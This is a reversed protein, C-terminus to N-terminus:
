KKSKSSIDVLKVVNERHRALLEISHTALLFQVDAEGVLKLLSDVLKRQWKVNLSIEPEDIIFVGSRGRAAITNCFLLLLQKEGSSLLSPDLIKGNKEYIRLGNSIDFSVKKDVYFESTGDIFAVILDKVEELADIRATTGDVYPKLVSYMITTTEAPIKKLVSTIEAVDLSSILGLDSFPKSRRKLNGLTDLLEGIKVETVTEENSPTSAISKVVDTYITNVNTEGVSAGKMTQDRFLENVGNIATQIAMDKIGNVAEIKRGRILRQEEGTWLTLTEEGEAEEKGLVKRNDALFYLGLNLDELLRCFVSLTVEVEGEVRISGEKNPVLEMEVLSSNGKWISLNYKGELIEGGREAVVRTGNVLQVEFRKFKQKGIFTRHGAHMAPSLISHLLRLITTKGSGNDGYLIILRSLNGYEKGHEPIEYTYYGFLKEVSIKSIANSSDIINQTIM